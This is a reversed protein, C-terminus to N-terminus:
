VGYKSGAERGGITFVQDIGEQAVARAWGEAATPFRVLRERIKKSHIQVDRRGGRSVLSPKAWEGMICAPVGRRIPRSPRVSSTRIIVDGVDGETDHGSNERIRRSRVEAVADVEVHPRKAAVNRHVSDGGCEREEWRWKIPPIAAM